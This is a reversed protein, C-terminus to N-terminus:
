QGERKNTKYKQLYWRQDDISGGGSKRSEVKGLKGWDKGSKALAPYLTCFSYECHVDRADDTPIPRTSRRSM